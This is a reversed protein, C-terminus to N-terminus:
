PECNRIEFTYNFQEDPIAVSIKDGDLFAVREGIIINQNRCTSYTYHDTWVIIFRALYETERPYFSPVNMLSLALLAIIVAAITRGFLLYVNPRYIPKEIKPNKDRKVLTNIFVFFSGSEDSAVVIIYLTLFWGALMFFIFTIMLWLIIAVVFTFAQMAFPFYAPNVPIFSNIFQASLMKAAWLCVISLLGLLALLFKAFKTEWISNIYRIIEITFGFTFCFVSFILFDEFIEHLRIPIFLWSLSFTLAGLVYLLASITLQRVAKISLKM